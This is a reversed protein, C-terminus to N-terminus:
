KREGHFTLLLRNNRYLMLKGREISYRNTERLGDLFEREVTMRQDEICARMTAVVDTIKLVRNNATYQGGFVNCSSNGGASGKAEDFVLFAGRGAKAIPVGKISELMWKRDELDLRGPQDVPGQKAVANLRAVVRNRDLLELTNGNRRLRDANELARVFGTEVRRVRPDSCAMKTTGINSFDIRRGQVDVTGFMRNCGTNGTFRTQNADLELYARSSAQVNLGDLQVLKWQRTGLRDAQAFAGIASAMIMMALILTKKM